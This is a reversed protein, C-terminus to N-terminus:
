LHLIWLVKHFKYRKLVYNLNYFECFKISNYRKLVYNFTYFECFEISSKGRWFLVLSVCRDMIINTPSIVHTAFNHFYGSQHISTSCSLTIYTTTKLVIYKIWTWIPSNTSKKINYMQYNNRCNHAKSLFIDLVLNSVNTIFNDIKSIVIPHLLM